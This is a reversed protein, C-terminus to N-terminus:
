FVAMFERYMSNRGADILKAMHMNYEALNLLDKRILGVTIDTNFKREEDSYIM